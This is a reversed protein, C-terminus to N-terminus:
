NGNWMLRYYATPTPASGDTFQFLGGAPANTTWLTSWSSLDTSVQVNYKYGPIGAFSMSATGGTVTFTSVQGGVGSSSGATLTIVASTTGGFGDTVTYSFQDDVINTNAYQVYGSSIVLTVGNTSTGLSNLTLTDGDADTANTLLDSVSIKWTSLGDRTYSNGNVVPPRNTITENFTNTLALYNADGSYEAAVVVTGHAYNQSATTAVGSVLSLVSGYATSNTRFQVSGTPTAGAGSVTATFSVPTSSSVNNASSTVVVTPIAKNVTVSVTNTVNNYDTADTPHFYVAVNTSLPNPAITSDVFGSTGAVTVGLANTFTGATLTSSALSQGYTIASGAPQTHNLPTQPTVTLTTSTDAASSLNSSVNGNYQYTITYPSFAVGNTKLSADNYTISFDGTNDTVTGNVTHGNITASVIDGNAPYIPGSASLSGTLTLGPLNTQGYTVSQSTVTFIPVPASPTVSAWSTGIRVEDWTNAITSGTGGQSYFTFYALSTKNTSPATGTATVSVDATPASGAGYNASAPNVWLEVTDGAAHFTYRAVILYTQGLTLVTSGFTPTGSAMGNGQIIGVQKSSNVVITGATGAPPTANSVPPADSFTAIAANAIPATTLQYLFSYCVTANETGAQTAYQTGESRPNTNASLSAAGNAAPAFGSPGVLGNTIYKIVTSGTGNGLTWVGGSATALGGGSASGYNFSDAFPLLERLQGTVGSATVTSSNGSTGACNITRLRYYYTGGNGPTVTKTTVNGTLLNNYAPVLSAFGSDYAVDLFYNTAGVAATWTATFSATTSTVTSPVVPASPGTFSGAASPSFATAVSAGNEAVVKFNYTTCSSLNTVTVTGWTAATQYVPTSSTLGGTATVYKTTTTEYIAYLTGSPNGDGSGITVNLSNATGGNVTPATPTNALTYFSMDAIDLVSGGVNVAYTRYYYATNVSLSGLSATYSAPYVGGNFDATGVQIQTSGTTVGPTTSWYFGYDTLASGGNGAVTGNLTASTGTQGSASQTSIAPAGGLTTTSASPGFATAVGAGNTAVVRFAYTTFGSLGTVTVTAWTNSSQYVPTSGLTGGTQVYNTSVLNTQQIAYLTTAPNGDAGGIQVTLSNATAGGVVPASPTGALTYFNTQNGLTNGAANNAYASYYYITNPSLSGLSNNFTGSYDTTGVQSKTSSTTVPSTTSWYFGYDTLASGGNATVNGNLTASATTTTTAGQTTVSPAVALTTGTAAPGFGTNLGVANTAEARFNYTVGPSLGTVTVTSWTSATQYVVSSGLAGSAQVYNTSVLNTQQIAYLTTSPNSDAGLTVPLSTSAATGITPVTPTAALTYFSVDSSGLTNGISNNAYARYYYITNPTLSSISLNYSGSHDTTGVQAKTSSTSVGSTTSWYFGYDTLASGGNSVTGNLTASTANTPNAAQTSVVPATTTLSTTPNNATLATAYNLANDQTYIRYYYTTSASLGSDTFTAASGSYVVTGSGLTSNYTPTYLAGQIPATTPDALGRVVIYGRVGSGADTGATWSLTQSSSGVSSFVPTTAATPATTDGTSNADIYIWVDDFNVISTGAANDKQSLAALCTASATTLAASSGTAFRTWAASPTATAIITYAGGNLKYGLYARSGTGTTGSNYVYGGVHVYYTGSAPATVTDVSDAEDGTSGTSTTSISLSKTGANAYASGISWSAGSKVVAAKWQGFTQVATPTGAALTSTEFSPDTLDARVAPALALIATCLLGCWNAPRRLINISQQTKM